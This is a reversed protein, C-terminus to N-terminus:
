RTEVDAGVARLGRRDVKGSALLPLEAVFTFEKPVKFRALRERLFERLEEAEVPRGDSLVFAHGVEGWIEDPQSVLAAAAVAPHEEMAQEVERPYISEGGSRIMESRRGVLELNGDDWPMVLDGTRFWGDATFAEATAEPRRWYSTLLHLGRVQLEGVGGPRAEIGEEDVVRGSYGDDFRGITAALVEDSAADDTYTLSGVTETMGWSTGRLGVREDLERVLPLSARGGSWCIRTLRELQAEGWRPSRSCLGLVAPDTYWIDIEEEAMLALLSDAEFQEQYVTTGGGVLMSISADGIAAVHNIPEVCPMRMGEAILWRRAQVACCTTFGRHPLVAGKPDGTTGSTYVLVAPTAGVVAASALRVVTRHRGTAPVAKLDPGSRVPVSGAVESALQANAEDRLAVLVVPEADEIQYTLERKSSKPSLGQFIAGLSVVALLTVFFEPCPPSLVAVRDGPRVGLAWLREAQAEVDSALQAYTLRNSDMVVAERGPSELAWHDLYDHIKEFAPPNM